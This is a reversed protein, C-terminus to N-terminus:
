KKIIRLLHKLEDIRQDEALGTPENHELYEEYSRIESEIYDRIGITQHLFHVNQNLRNLTYIIGDIQDVEKSPGSELLRDRVEILSAIIQEVGEDPDPFPKLKERVRELADELANHLEMIDHEVEDLPPYSM